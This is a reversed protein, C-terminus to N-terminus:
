ACMSQRSVPVDLVGRPVSRQGLIAEFTKPFILHAGARPRVKFPNQLGNPAAALRGFVQDVMDRNRHTM